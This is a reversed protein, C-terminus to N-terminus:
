PDIKIDELDQDLLMKKSHSMDNVIAEIQQEVRDIHETLEQIGRNRSAVERAGICWFVLATLSWASGYLLVDAAFASGVVSALIGGGFIAILIVATFIAAMFVISIVRAWKWCSVTEQKIVSVTLSVDLEISSTKSNSRSRLMENNNKTDLSLLGTTATPAINNTNVDM